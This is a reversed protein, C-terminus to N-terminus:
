NNKSKNKKLRYYGTKPNIEWKPSKARKSKFKPSEKDPTWRLKRVYGPNKDKWCRGTEPNVVWGSKKCKHPLGIYKKTTKEIQGQYEVENKELHEKCKQLKREYTEQVKRLQVKFQEEKIKEEQLVNNLNERCQILEKEINQIAQLKLTESYENNQQIYEQQKALKQSLETDKEQLRERFQQQLSNQIQLVNDFQQQCQNLEKVLKKIMQLKLTESNKNTKINEQLEQIKQNLQRNADELQISIRKDNNILNTLEKKDKKLKILDKRAELIINDKGENQRIYEQKEALKQTLEIEKEQLQERLQQQLVYQSQQEIVLDRNQKECLDKSEQLETLIRFNNDIINRTQQDTRNTFRNFNRRMQEIQAELNIKERESQQQLKNVRQFNESLQQSDLQIQKLTEECNIKTQELEQRLFQLENEKEEGSHQLTEIQVELNRKESILNNYREQEEVLRQKEQECEVHIQKLNPIISEIEAHRSLINELQNQFNQKAVFLQQETQAKENNCKERLANYKQINEKIIEQFKRDNVNIREDCKNKQEQISRKHQIKITELFRNEIEREREELLKDVKNQVIDNIENEKLWKIDKLINNLKENNNNIIYINEDSIEEGRNEAEAKFKFMYENIMVLIRLAVYLAEYINDYEYTRAATLIFNRREDDGLDYITNNNDNNNNYYEQYYKRNDEDFKEFLKYFQQQQIDDFVM